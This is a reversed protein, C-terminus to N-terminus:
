DISAKKLSVIMMLQKQQEGAGNREKWEMRGVQGEGTFSVKFLAKPGSNALLNKIADIAM